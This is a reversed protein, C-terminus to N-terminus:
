PTSNKTHTQKYNTSSSGRRVKDASSPSGREDSYEKAVLLSM